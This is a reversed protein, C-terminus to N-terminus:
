WGLGSMSNSPLAQGLNFSALRRGKWFLAELLKQNLPEACASALIITAHEDGQQQMTGPESLRFWEVEVNLIHQRVRGIWSLGQNADVVRAMTSRGGIPTVCLTTGALAIPRLVEGLLKAQRRASVDHAAQMGAPFTAHVIPSIVLLRVASM